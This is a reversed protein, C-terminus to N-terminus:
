FKVFKIHFMSIRSRDLMDLHWLFRSPFKFCTWSALLIKRVKDTLLSIRTEPGLGVNLVKLYDYKRYLDFSFKVLFELPWFHSNNKDDVTWGMRERAFSPHEFFYVSLEPYNVNTLHYINHLNFGIQLWSCINQLYWLPTGDEYQKILQKSKRDDQFFPRNNDFVIKYCAFHQFVEKHWM